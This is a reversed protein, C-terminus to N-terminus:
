IDNEVRSLLSRDSGSCGTHSGRVRGPDLTPSASWSCVSCTRKEGGVGEDKCIKSSSHESILGPM